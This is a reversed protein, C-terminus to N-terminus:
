KKIEKLYKDSGEIVATFLSDIRTVQKKQENYYKIKEEHTKGTLEADFNKMWTSMVEDASILKSRVASITAKEEATYKNLSDPMLITDLQM